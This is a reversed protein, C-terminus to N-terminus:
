IIFGEDGELKFYDENEIEPLGYKELNKIILERYLTDYFINPKDEMKSIRELSKLSKKRSIHSTLYKRKRGTEKSRYEAEFSYEHYIERYWEPAYSSAVRIKNGEFHPDPASALEVVLRNNKLDEYLFKAEETLAKVFKSNEKVPRTPYWEM